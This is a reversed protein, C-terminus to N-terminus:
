FVSQLLVRINNTRKKKRTTSVCAKNWVDFPTRSQSWFATIIGRTSFDLELQKHLFLVDFVSQRLHIHTIWHLEGSSFPQIACYVATRLSAEFGQSVHELYGTDTTRVVTLQLYVSYHSNLPWRIRSIKNCCDVCHPNKCLTGKYLPQLFLWISFIPALISFIRSFKFQIKRKRYLSKNNNNNNWIM